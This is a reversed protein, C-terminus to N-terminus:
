GRFLFIWAVAGLLLALMPYLLPPAPPKILGAAGALVRAVVALVIGLVACVMWAPFFAGFVAVSPALSCGSCLLPLLVLVTKIRM